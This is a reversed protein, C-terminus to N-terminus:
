LCAHMAGVLLTLYFPSLSALRQAGTVEIAERPLASPMNLLALSPQSLDPPLPDLAFWGGQATRALALLRDFIAQDRIHRQQLVPALWLLGPPEAVILALDLRTGYILTVPRNNDDVVKQLPGALLSVNMLLDGKAVAGTRGTLWFDQAM